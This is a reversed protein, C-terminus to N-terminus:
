WLYRKSVPPPCSLAFPGAAFPVCVPPRQIGFGPAERWVHGEFEAGGDAAMPVGTGTLLTGPDWLQAGGGLGGPLPAVLQLPPRSRGGGGGPGAMATGGTHDKIMSGLVM